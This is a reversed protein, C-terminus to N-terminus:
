NSIPKKNTSRNQLYYVLPFLLTLLVGSGASILERYLFSDLGTLQYWEYTDFLVSSFSLDQHFARHISIGCAIYVSFLTIILCIPIMIAAKNLNKIVSNFLLYLIITFTFALFFSIVTPGVSYEFSNSYLNINGLIHPYSALGIIQWAPFLCLLAIIFRKKEKGGKKIVLNEFREKFVVESIIGLRTNLDYVAIDQNTDSIECKQYLSYRKFVETIKLIQNLLEDDSLFTYDIDLVINGEEDINEVIDLNLRELEGLVIHSYNSLSFILKDRKTKNREIYFYYQSATGYLANVGTHFLIVNKSLDLNLNNM